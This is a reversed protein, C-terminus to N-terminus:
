IEINKCIVSDTYTTTIVNENFISLFNNTAQEENVSMQNIKIGYPGQGQVIHWITMLRMGVNRDIASRM